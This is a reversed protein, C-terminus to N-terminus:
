AVAGKTFVWPMKKSVTHRQFRWAGGVNRLVDDFWGSAQVQVAGTDRAQVTRLFYCRVHATRGDSEGDINTVWHQGNVTPETMRFELRAAVWKQLAERGATVQNNADFIGDETFTELWAAADGTDISWSYRTYLNEIGLRDEVSLM